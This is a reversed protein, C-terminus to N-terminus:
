FGTIEAMQKDQRVPPEAANAGPKHLNPFDEGDLWETHFQIQSIEARPRGAGCDAPPFHRRLACFRGAM